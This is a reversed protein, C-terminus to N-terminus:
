NHVERDLALSQLILVHRSIKFLKSLHFLAELSQLQLVNRSSFIHFRVFDGLV